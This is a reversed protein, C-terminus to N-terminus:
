QLEDWNCVVTVQPARLVGSAGGGVDNAPVTVSYAVYANFPAGAFWGPVVGTTLKHCNSAPPTAPDCGTTAALAYGGLSDAIGYASWEWDTTATGGNPAAVPRNGLWSQSAYNYYATVFSKLQSSVQRTLQACVTKRDSRGSGRTATLALSLVAAAMIATLMVSIVIEM